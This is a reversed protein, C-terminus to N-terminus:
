SARARGGVAACLVWGGRDVRLARTSHGKERDLLPRVRVCVRLQPARTPDALWLACCAVARVKSPMAPEGAGKAGAAAAQGEEKGGEGVEM